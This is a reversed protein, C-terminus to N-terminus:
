TWVDVIQRFIRDLGGLMQERIDIQGFPCQSDRSYIHAFHICLFFSAVPRITKDGLEALFWIKKRARQM